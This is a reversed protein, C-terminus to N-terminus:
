LPRCLYGPRHKGKICAVGIRRINKASNVDRDVFTTVTEDSSIQGNASPTTDLVKHCKKKIFENKDEDFVNYYANKLITKSTYHMKSTYDENVDVTRFNKSILDKFICNPTPHLHKM